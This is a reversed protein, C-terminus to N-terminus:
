PLANMMRSARKKLHIVELSDPALQFAADLHGIASSYDGSKILWNAMKVLAEVNSPNARITKELYETALRGDKMDEAVYATAMYVSALRHDGPPLEREVAKYQEIAAAMDGKLHLVDGKLKKVAPSDPAKELLADIEVLAIDFLNQQIYLRIINMVIQVDSPRINRVRTYYSIAMLPKNTNKYLSALALMAAEMGPDAKLANLYMKEARVPDKVHYAFFNGLSHWTAPGFNEVGVGFAAPISDFNELYREGMVDYPSKYLDIPAAFELIPRDDTNILGYGATMEELQETGMVYTTLLFSLTDHIGFIELRNKLSQLNSLRADIKFADMDIPEMSGILIIDPLGSRFVLANPFVESYTALIMLLSEESLGYAQVWQCSIGGPKLRDRIAEFSERTFLGAAGSLWPNSPQSIIVDYGGKERLLFNRADELAFKHRPDEWYSNNVDKFYKSAEIVSPELEVSRVREVPFELAAGATTGSGVGIILVDRADGKLALPIYSLMTQTRLDVVSSADTKGNVRLFMNGEIQHVSVTAALGDHYYLIDDATSKVIDIYKAISIGAAGTPSMYPGATMVGANWFPGTAIAACAAIPIVALAARRLMGKVPGAALAAVGGACGLALGLALTNRAGISPILWFGTM